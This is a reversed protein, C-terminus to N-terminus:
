IGPLTPTTLHGANKAAVIEAYSMASLRESLDPDDQGLTKILAQRKREIVEREVMRRHAVSRQSQRM